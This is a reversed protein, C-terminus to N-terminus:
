RQEAAEGALQAAVEELRRLFLRDHLRELVPRARELPAPDGTRRALIVRMRAAHVILQHEEAEDIARALRENDNERLARAIQGSWRLMDESFPSSTLMADSVIAEHENFLLLVLGAAYNWPDHDAETLTFHGGEEYASYYSKMKPSLRDLVSSAADMAPRDQRAAAILFLVLNAGIMIEPREFRNQLREWIERVTGALEDVESWRGTVYAGWLSINLGSNFYEVPEGPRRAALANRIIALSQDYDGMLFYTSVLMSLADGRESLPLGPLELRRRAYELARQHEGTAWALSIMGDLLSNVLPWNASQELHRLAQQCTAVTQRLVTRDIGYLKKRDLFFRGARMLWAEDEDGAEQALRLGEEWLAVLEDKEPMQSSFHRTYSICLKCALQAGIRVDKMAEARWLQLAKQYAEAVMDGWELSDGLLEYLRVHESAPALSIANRLYQEAEAFAGAHAALVGARTLHYVARELEHQMNRAIASQQNLMVAERYHYAMLEVFEDQHEGCNSELWAAIKCHILVRKSRTLLHYAVDRILIHRFAYTEGDIAVLLDRQQLGDLATAIEQASQDSLVSQLLDARIGRSAVAAVLLVDRECSTLLDLRAQVAAHVTDPLADVAAQQGSLGREQLNHVMELTFFPSGGARDIIRQQVEQPLDAAIRSLLDQMQASTLPQLAISTFNQRGGGWAPRRDLLEPRSLVILLIRAQTRVNIVFEVLDLMSESAWHLDEFVLIRPAKRAFAEILLRWAMFITERDARGVDDGEVGLTALVLDALRVVDEQSYGGQRFIEQVQPKMSGAESEGLLEQLLGRLPWYTLTQGYPLCRVMAVQFAYEPDVYRPKLFEELLRTKGTGAPAVISVLQPRQEEVVRELLLSLQMLDTKRGVFPPREIARKERRRLLPFVRVPLSKGKAVIERPEAFLFANRTANVT